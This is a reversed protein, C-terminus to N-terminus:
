NYGLKLEVGGSFGWFLFTFFKFINKAEVYIIIKVDSSINHKNTQCKVFNIAVQQSCFTVYM